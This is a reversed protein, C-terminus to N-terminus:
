AKTKKGPQTQLSNALAEYPRLRVFDEATVETEESSSSKTPWTRLSNVWAKDAKVAPDEDITTEKDSLVIDPIEDEDSVEDESAEEVPVRRINAVGIGYMNGAAKRAGKFSTFAMIEDLDIDHKTAVLYIKTGEDRAWDRMEELMTDDGAKHVFDIIEPTPQGDIVVAESIISKFDNELICGHGGNSNDRDTTAYKSNSITTKLKEWETRKVAFLGPPTGDNEECNAGGPTKVIIMGSEMTNLKVGDETKAAVIVATFRMTAATRAEEITKRDAAGDARIVAFVGRPPDDAYRKRIKAECDAAERDALALILRKDYETLM